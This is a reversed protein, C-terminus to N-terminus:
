ETPAVGNQELFRFITEWLHVSIKPGSVRHTQGPYLMMDFPVAEAQLRAILASSNEFVVNDDAMGHILLLSDRIQGAEALADSRAYAEADAQPTGMYRETYATDYLEWKTVPAGAVGAAYLGPDAQLMKLTMYGGYSWGYTAIKDPDVFDLTKLFEAGRKQDEVEVSGMARNIPKEFAVGRNASGRNDLAFFIYGKDVIAQALAGHWGKTVTQAHPGGYHQFFVPYRKGPELPPTIMMTHLPMGDAGAITGYQAVQHSALYPVYAHDADVRNEEIWALRQGQGDALYVQGPQADSSRSVVLTKGAEDMRASNAFAPDSLRVAAEPSSLDLAYVQVALPDDKTGTFFVRGADEDVGALGTVVWPGSTLQRWQGDAFRYLHGYGDRESWWILSGDELFKYNSTLNIWHGPAAEESFLVTAKGTAPDVSLMDLVTQARNLRQVYLRSGDPAWDVRGLYIDREAGLDVEVRNGGDPDMVFLRVDANPTGAAPYRQQYTSTGEAGIAARTVIGVPAEDFREVAIRHDQPSGWFGTQRDLEEQAVFEAEGWHVTDATEEPTIPRADEGLLGTWLRGDQVFSIFGGTQSLKPNLEAEETDTLRQVAGNLRALYLDGELPVLISQGDASWDYAVVGKLDGIRLRERQMKEAESLERGQGLATSDVLMRWEGSTRDYGWLDYREREDTRNRLLTVWRGDPSLKLARPSPGDLGPSAFVRELSLDVTQQNVASEMQSQGSSQASVPTALPVLALATALALHRSRKM